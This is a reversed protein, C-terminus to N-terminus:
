PASSSNTLTTTSGNLTFVWYNIRGDTNYAFGLKDSKVYMAVQDGAALESTTPNATLGQWDVVRWAIRSHFAAQL